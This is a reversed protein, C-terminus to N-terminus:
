FRIEKLQYLKPVVLVKINPTKSINKILYDAATKTISDRRIVYKVEKAFKCIHMAAQCASNGGGVIYIIEDKCAHAEVSAAGYYVGAGNFKDLGPINLNPTNWEQQLLLQKATSRRDM